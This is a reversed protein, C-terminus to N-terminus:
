DKRPVYMNLVDSIEALIVDNTLFDKLVERKENDFLDSAQLGQIVWRVSTNDFPLSTALRNEFQEVKERFDGMANAVDKDSTVFLQKLYAKLAEVDVTASEFVVKEWEARAQMKKVGPVEEFSESMEIDGDAPESKGSSLWETVLKGYLDAYQYKTSQVSLHRRISKEWDELVRPSVSPDYRAQELFRDLNKLDTKVRPNSTAGVLVRGRGGKNRKSPVTMVGLCAKAGEVLLFLRELADPEKDAAEILAAHQTEFALRQKDLEELKTTTIAQLTESFVSGSSAM